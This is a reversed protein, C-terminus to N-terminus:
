RSNNLNNRCLEKGGIIVDNGAGAMITDNGDGANILAGQGVSRADINDNGETGNIIKAVSLGAVSFLDNNVSAMDTGLDAINHYTPNQVYNNILNTAHYSFYYKDLAGDVGLGQDTVFHNIGDLIQAKNLGGFDIADTSWDYNASTFIDKFTGQM